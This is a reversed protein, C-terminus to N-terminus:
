KLLITKITDTEGQSSLYVLYIGSAVPSGAHDLGDWLVSGSGARVAGNLLTRIERGSVDLVKLELWGATAMMYHIRTRPNFPNPVAACLYAGTPAPSDQVSTLVDANNELFVVQDALRLPVALDLDGDRVGAGVPMFGLSLFAGTGDGGLVDIGGGEYCPVVLDLEGDLTFDEAIAMVPLSSTPYDGAFEIIGSGRNLMIRLYDQEESSIRNVALALDPLEDHNFDAAVGGKLDSGADVAVYTATIELEGDGPNEMYVLIGDDERLVVLETIEDGDYDAPLVTGPGYGCDIFEIQDFGESALSFLLTITFDWGNAVVLDMREDGNFDGAALDWPGNGVGYHGLLQYVESSDKSYLSVNDAANNTTALEEVGDGNFDAAFLFLPQYDCSLSQVHFFAPPSYLWLQITSEYHNLLGLDARGDGVLQTAVVSNPGGDTSIFPFTEYSDFLPPQSQADTGPLIMSLILLFLLPSGTCPRPMKFMSM